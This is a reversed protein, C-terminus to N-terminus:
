REHDFSSLALLGVIINKAGAKKLLAYAAQISAGTTWVDDFLIYTAAPNIKIKPNLHYTTSAQILRTERSSGVQITNKTRTLLRSVQCNSRLSAFHKAILHTHDFGRERIHKNITPLPIIFSSPEISPIISDLIEALPRALARVSNYKFDHILTGILDSRNSVIFFPPLHRCHPCKGDSNPQHCVPCFNHHRSIIYKKCCNCLPDGIHGCGRCSHPALLDLPNIITTIKVINPM